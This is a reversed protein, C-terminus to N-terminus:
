VLHRFSGRGLGCVGTILVSRSQVQKCRKRLSWGSQAPTTKWRGSSFTPRAPSASERMLGLCTYLKPRGHIRCSPLPPQLEGHTHTNGFGLGWCGDVGVQEVTFGLGSVREFRNLRPLNAVEQLQRAIQHCEKHRFRTGWKQQQPARDPVRHSREYVRFFVRKHEPSQKSTEEASRQLCNLYALEVYAEQLPM